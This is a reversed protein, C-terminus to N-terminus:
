KKYMLISAVSGIFLLLIEFLCKFFTYIIERFLEMTSNDNLPSVIEELHHFRNWPQIFGERNGMWESICPANNSLHTKYGWGECESSRFLETCDSLIHLFTCIAPPLTAFISLNKARTKIWIM